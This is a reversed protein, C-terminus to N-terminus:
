YGLSRGDIEFSWRSCRGGVDKSAGTFEIRAGGDVWVDLRGDGAVWLELRWRRANSYMCCCGMGVDVIRGEAFEDVEIPGSHQSPVGEAERTSLERCHAAVGWDLLNDACLDCLSELRLQQFDVIVGVAMCVMGGHLTAGGLLCM